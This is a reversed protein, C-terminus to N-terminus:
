AFCAVHEDVFSFGAIAEKEGDFAFEDDGTSSLFDRNESCTAVNSFHGEEVLAWAGGGDAGDFGGSEDYEFAFCEEFEEAFIGADTDFEHPGEGLGEALSEIFGIGLEKTGILELVGGNSGEGSRSLARKRM